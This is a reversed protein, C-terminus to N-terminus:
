LPEVGDRIDTEAVAADRLDARVQAAIGDLVDLSEDDRRPQDIKMRVDVRAACREADIRAAQRTAPACREDVRPARPRAIESAKEVM